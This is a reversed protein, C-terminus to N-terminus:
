AVTVTMCPLILCHNEKILCCRMHARIKLYILLHAFIFTQFCCCNTLRHSLQCPSLNVIIASSRQPLINFSERAVCKLALGDYDYRDDDDLDDDDDDDDDDDNM